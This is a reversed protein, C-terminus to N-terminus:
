EREVDIEMGDFAVEVGDPLKGSLESYDLGIGLHTLVARKPKVRDIWALSKEVHVHTPHPNDCLTGIIWLRVGDLLQFAEESMEVVDTTYGVDGLRFGLSRSFGHNQDIPTIKVPGINFGIGPRIENAILSPKYFFNSGDVLPEFVYGFRKSIVGLTRADAYIDLPADISRNVARLDDIGHLHDAHAHSYVVGDLKNIDANLLQQRLDPSTDLLIRVGEDEIMASPRTRRNKSNKPDCRGWGRVDAAPVGSSAGCGLIKVRM